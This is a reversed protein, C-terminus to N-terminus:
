SINRTIPIGKLESKVRQHRTLLDRSIDKGGAHVIAKNGLSSQAMEIVRAVTEDTPIPNRQILETIESLVSVDRTIVGIKAAQAAKAGNLGISWDAHALMRRDNFGDGVAINIADSEGYNNFLFKAVEVKGRDGIVDMTAMIKSLETKNGPTTMRGDEAWSVGIEEMFFRHIRERLLLRTEEDGPQTESEIINSYDLLFDEVLQMEESWKGSEELQQKAEDIPFDTGIMGDLGLKGMVIDRNNQDWATTLGIVLAGQSKLYALYEQSGPTEQSEQAIESIMAENVGQYLFYPLTLVIDSGEQGLGNEDFMEEFWEYTEDYIRAGHPVYRDM